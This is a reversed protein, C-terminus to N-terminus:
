TSVSSDNDVFMSLMGDDSISSREMVDGLNSEAGSVLTFRAFDGLFFLHSGVFGSVHRFLFFFDDRFCLFPLLFRQLLFPPLPRFFPQRLGFTVGLGGGILSSLMNDDGPRSFHM